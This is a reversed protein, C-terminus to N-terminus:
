SKGRGRNRSVSKEILTAVFEQITSDKDAVRLRLLRHIDMPIRVHIMRGQRQGKKIM